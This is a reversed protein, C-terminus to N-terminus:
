KARCEVAAGSPESGRLAHGWPPRSLPLRSRSEECGTRGGEEPVCLSQGPHCHWDQDARM